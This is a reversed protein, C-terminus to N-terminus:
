PYLQNVQPEQQPPQWGGFADDGAVFPTPM